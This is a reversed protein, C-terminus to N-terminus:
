SSETVNDIHRVAARDANLAVLVDPRTSGPEVAFRRTATAVAHDSRGGFHPIGPNQPELGRWVSLGNGLTLVDSWGDGDMDAIAMSGGSSTDESVLPSGCSVFTSGTACYIGISAATSGGTQPRVAVDALGDGDLDGVAFSSLFGVEVSGSASGSFGDVASLHSTGVLAHGVAMLVEDSGDGDVDGVAPGVVSSGPSPWDGLISGSVLDAFGGSGDGALTALTSVPGGYVFSSMGRVVLDLDDDGDLDGLVVTDGSLDVGSPEAPGIVVERDSAVLGAARGPGAAGGFYVAVGSATGVVVDAVGDGDVDGVAASRGAEGLAVSEERQWCGTGCSTLRVLAGDSTVVIPDAVGRDAVDGWAVAVARSTTTTSAEMVAGDEFEICAALFALAAVPVLVRTMRKMQGVM